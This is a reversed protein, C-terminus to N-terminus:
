LDLVNGSHHDAAIVACLQVCLTDIDTCHRHAALCLLAFCLLLTGYMLQFMPTRALPLFLEKFTAPLLGPM